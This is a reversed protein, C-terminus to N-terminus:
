SVALSYDSTIKLVQDSLDVNEFPKSYACHSLEGPRGRSKEM